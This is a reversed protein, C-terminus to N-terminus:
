PAPMAGTTIITAGYNNFIDFGYTTGSVTPPVHDWFNNAANITASCSTYLDADINGAIINGGVSGTPGGGLDGSTVYAEYVVGAGNSRIINNEVRTTPGPGRYLPYIGLGCVNNLIENGSIVSQNGGRCVFIAWGNVNVIRNNRLTVGDHDLIVGSEYGGVRITTNTITFGAITTNDEPLIAVSNIDSFDILLPGGGRILTQTPGNGKNAEDGILRVGSPIVIPFTEGLVNDYTGPAVTVTDGSAAMSLAKTITRYPIAFGNGTADDGIAANVMYFPTSSGGAGCGALVFVAVVAIASLGIIRKM